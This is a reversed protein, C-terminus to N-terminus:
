SLKRNQFESDVAQQFEQQRAISFKAGAANKLGGGIGSTEKAIKMLLSGLDCNTVDKGCRASVKVDGEQTTTRLLVVKGRFRALSSIILCVAGTMRENVVGDGIVFALQGKERNRDESQLLVQLTKM